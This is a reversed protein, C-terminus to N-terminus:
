IQQVEHTNSGVWHTFYKIVGVLKWVVYLSLVLIGTWSRYIEGRVLLVTNEGNGSFLM